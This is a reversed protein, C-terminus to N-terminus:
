WWTWCFHNKTVFMLDLSQLSKFLCTRYLLINPYTIRLGALWYDWRTTVEQSMLSFWSRAEQIMRHKKVFCVIVCLSSTNSPRSRSRRGRHAWASYLYVWTEDCRYMCPGSVCQFFTRCLPLSATHFYVLHHLTHSLSLSLSLFLASRQTLQKNNCAELVIRVQWSHVGGSNLCHRCRRTVSAYQVSLLVRAFTTNLCSQTWFAFTDSDCLWTEVFCNSPSRNYKQAFNYWYQLRKKQPGTVNRQTQGPTSHEYLVRAKLFLIFDGSTQGFHSRLNCHKVQWVHATCIQPRLVAATQATQAKTQNYNAPM